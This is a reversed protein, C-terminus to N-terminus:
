TANISIAYTIALTDNDNMVVATMDSTGSGSAVRGALLKITTASDAASGDRSDALFIGNITKASSNENKVTVTAATTVMPNATTSASDFVDVPDNGPDTGGSSKFFMNPSGTTAGGNGRASNTFAGFSTGGHEGIGSITPYNPTTTVIHVDQGVTFDTGTSTLWFGILVPVVAAPTEGTVTANIGHSLLSLGDLTLRNSGSYDTVLGTEACTHKIDFWGTVGAGTLNPIRPMNARVIELDMSDSGGMLSGGM